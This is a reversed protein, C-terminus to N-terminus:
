IAGERLYLALEQTREKTLRELCRNVALPAISGGEVRSRVFACHRDRFTIWTLQADILRDEQERGAPRDGALERIRRRLQQYTQNLQRDAARYDVESCRNLERQTQPNRCDISQAWLPAVLVALPAIAGIVWACGYAKAM